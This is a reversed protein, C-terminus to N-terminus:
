SKISRITFSRTFCSKAFAAALRFFRFYPEPLLGAHVEDLGLRKRVEQAIAQTDGTLLVARLGMTRLAAVARVAEPRLADEIHLSGLLRGNRGVLMESAPGVASEGTPLDM